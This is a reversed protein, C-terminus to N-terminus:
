PKRRMPNPLANKWCRRWTRASGPYEWSAQANTSSMERVAEAHTPFDIHRDVLRKGRGDKL